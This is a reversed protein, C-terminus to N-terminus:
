PEDELTRRQGISEALPQKVERGADIHLATQERLAHRLAQEEARFVVSLAHPCGPLPSRGREGPPLQIPYRSGNSSLLGRTTSSPALTQNPATSLPSKLRIPTPDPVLTCSLETMCVFSSRGVMIPELTVIPWRESSSPRSLSSPASIPIPLMTKFRARTPRRAISAAPLTTRSSWSIGGSTRAAPTGASTFFFRPPEEESHTSIAAWSYWASLSLYM